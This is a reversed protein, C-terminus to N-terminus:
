GELADVAEFSAAAEGEGFVDVLFGFDFGGAAFGALGAAGRGLSRGCLTKVGGTAVARRRLRSGRRVPM